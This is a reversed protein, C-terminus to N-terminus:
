TGTQILGTYDLFFQLDIRQSLGTTIQRMLKFGTLNMFTAIGAKQVPPFMDLLIQNWLECSFNFLALRRVEHKVVRICLM